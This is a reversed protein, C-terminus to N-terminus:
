SMVPHSKPCSDDEGFFFFTPWHRSEEDRHFLQQKLKSKAQGVAIVLRFELSQIIPRTWLRYNNYQWNLWCLHRFAFKGNSIVNMLGCKGSRLDKILICNRLPSPELNISLSANGCVDSYGVTRHNEMKWKRFLCFFLLYKCEIVAPTRYWSWRLWCNM